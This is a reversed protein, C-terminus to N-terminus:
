KSKKAKLHKKWLDKDATKRTKGNMVFSYIRAVGWQVASMKQGGGGKVGQLNRVSSPNTKRAGMGRKKVENLISVSVGSLKSIENVSHSANLTFGYKKNFKQRNTVVMKIYGNNKKRRKIM